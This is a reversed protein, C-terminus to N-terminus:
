RFDAFHRSLELEIQADAVADAGDVEFVAMRGQMRSLPVFNEIVKYDARSEYDDVLITARAKRKAAEKVTQLACAVRFRGDILVLDPFLGLEEFRRFPALVYQKWRKIRRLTPKTFVPRGWERTPGINVPLLCLPSRQNGIKRAVAKAYYRDSEVSIGPKALKAALCTSGGMGWELYVKAQELLCPFVRNSESDFHPESAVDFGEIHQVYFIRSRWLFDLIRPPLFQKLRDILM